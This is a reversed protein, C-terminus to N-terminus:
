PFSWLAQCPHHVFAPWVTAHLFSGSLHWTNPIRPVLAPLHTPLPGWKMEVDLSLTFFVASYCKNSCLCFWVTLRSNWRERQTLLATWNRTASPLRVATRSELAVHGRKTWTEKESTLKGLVPFGLPERILNLLDVMVCAFYYETFYFWFPFICGAQVVFEDMTFCKWLIKSSSALPPSVLVWLTSSSPSPASARHPQSCLRRYRCLWRLVRALQAAPAWPCVRTKAAPLTGPERLTCKCPM